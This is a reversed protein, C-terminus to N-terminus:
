SHPQVDSTADDAHMVVATVAAFSQKTATTGTVRHLAPIIVIHYSVIYNTSLFQRFATQETSRKSVLLLHFCSFHFAILM